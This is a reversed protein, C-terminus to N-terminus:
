GESQEPLKIIGRVKRKILDRFTIQIQSGKRHPTYSNLKIDGDWFRQLIREDLDDEAILDIGILEEGYQVRMVKM